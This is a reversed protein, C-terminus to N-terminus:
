LAGGGLRLKSLGNRLRFFCLFFFLCRVFDRSEKVLPIIDNIWFDVVRQYVYLFSNFIVMSITLKGMLFPSKGCNKTHKGPRTIIGNLIASM